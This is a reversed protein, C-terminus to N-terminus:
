ERVKIESHRIQQIKNFEHLPLRSEFGRSWSPFSANRVPDMTCAACSDFSFGGFHAALVTYM